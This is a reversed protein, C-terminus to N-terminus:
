EEPLKADFRMEENETKKGKAKPAKKFTAGVQRIPPMEIKKGSLLDAVTLLQIKPYKQGWTKSEFFGATVAETEMPRSPDEMSILVGIAANEREVVGRLDRVHNATVHGAKVSLIVTEFQGVCDGVFVIKGDIGKDAGKKQEVPRAGVLGLAWWQFQYPDSEALAAADPVSVPEGIVEYTRKTSGYEAQTEAAKSEVSAPSGPLEIGFADKLRQKMLTIALHTIDIGIWRRNLRQAVAITTGCGCFPDMVVDGESSSARIIRELLAEPKQTPYGLGESSWSVVPQVARDAWIDQLPMGPMEDLYRKYRPFGRKTFFIRGDKVFLDIKDQSFRWHSGPPPQRLQGNFHRAPGPGAAAVDGSAYKRGDGDDYRYYKDIYDQDYPQFVPVWTHKAGRAYFLLVDHIRGARQSDSHATTRKWIIENLFREPGFVADMLLKLYHSAAPDCHLYISGTSKLVRHLEVLRPAMMVLYALMDCPGLFTRFAQMVDAVRGGATVLEAFVVEDEQDWTWTDEFARIQSAAQSGDKEQFLVNYNQSSKFPPDLYVLDISEDRIYRRLIDLNDGYFLKNKWDSSVGGGDTFTFVVGGLLLRLM